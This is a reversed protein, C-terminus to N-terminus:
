VTVACSARTLHGGGWVISETNDADGEVGLDPADPHQIALHRVRHLGLRQGKVWVVDM